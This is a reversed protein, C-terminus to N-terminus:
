PETLARLVPEMLRQVDARDAGAVPQVQLLYRAMTLGMLCAGVLSARLDADDADITAAVAGIRDCMVEDRVIRSAEPHTLCNRLLAVAAERGEGEFRTFLDHLSAAPVDPAAASLVTESEPAWRASAAFLGQKSGFYQMVLAPDIGARAAVARITTREFGTEAFLEQAADLITQETRRRREDRPVHPLESATPVAM